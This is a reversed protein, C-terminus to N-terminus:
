IGAAWAKNNKGFSLTTLRVILFRLVLDSVIIRCEIEYVIM